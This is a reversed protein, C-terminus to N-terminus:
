RTAELFDGRGKATDLHDSLGEELLQGFQEEGFQGQCSVLRAAALALTDPAWGYREIIADIDGAQDVEHDLDNSRLFRLYDPLWKRDHMVLPVIAHTGSPTEDDSWIAHGHAGEATELAYAHLLPHLAEFTAAE